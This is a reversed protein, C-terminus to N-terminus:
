TVLAWMWAGQHCEPRHHHLWHPAAGGAARPGPAQLGQRGGTFSNMAAHPTGAHAAPRGGACREAGVGAMGPILSGLATQVGMNSHSVAMSLGPQAGNTPCTRALSLAANAWHRDPSSAWKATVTLLEVGAQSRQTCCWCWKWHQWAGAACAVAGPTLTTYDM